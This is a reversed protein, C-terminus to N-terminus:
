AEKASATGDSLWWRRPYWAGLAMILLQSLWFMLLWFFASDMFGYSHLGIGLMNTGFWSWSTVINGFITLQMLGFSRVMGSRKAHLILANWIVILLAGNEKPDWGWFRGWSQDAWIGGLVTGVFSFLLAFCIVGYVMRDLIKSSEKDLKRTFLGLILYLIALFGALFTASYGLSITVVHTALWFNSDLVARMMELTDGSMSLHYAVILSLFGAVASVITGFGRRFIAEFIVGLVVSAWGVFVASSYLNTVPPRDQIIMRAVLGVTHILGALIIVWFAYDLQKDHQILWAVFVIVFGLVYLYMSLSFLQLHNFWFEANVKSHSFDTAEAYIGELKDLAISFAESDDVILADALEAFYITANPLSGVTMPAFLSEGLNLWEGEGGVGPVFRLTELEALQGYERSYETLAQLIANEDPVEEGDALIASSEKLVALYQNYENVVGNPANQPIFSLSYKQYLVIEQALKVIERQFPTQQQREVNVLQAQQIITSAYPRLQNYSYYFKDFPEGSIMSQIDGHVVRFVYYDSASEPNLSLHAFWQIAPVKEGQPDIASQKSRLILMTNRALSDIPKFRGGELVPLEGFRAYDYPEDVFEPVARYLCYVFLIAFLISLAKKM